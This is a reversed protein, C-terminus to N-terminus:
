RGFEIVPDDFVLRLIWPMEYGFMTCVYELFVFVEAINIRVCLPAVRYATKRSKSHGVQKSPGVLVMRKDRYIDGVGGARGLAAWLVVVAAMRRAKAGQCPGSCAVGHDDTDLVLSYQLSIM